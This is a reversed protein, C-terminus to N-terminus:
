RIGKIKRKYKPWAKKYKKVAKKPVYITKPPTEGFSNEGITPPTESLLTLSQLHTGDLAYDDISTLQEGLILSSLTSKRLSAMGLRKVDSPIQYSEMAATAAVVLTGDSNILANDKVNGGSIDQLRAVSIMPSPVYIVDRVGPLRVSVLDSTFLTGPIKTVPSKFKISFVDTKDDSIAKNVGCSSIEAGYENNPEADDCSFLQEGSYTTYDISAIQEIEYIRYLRSLRVIEPLDDSLFLELELIISEHQIDDYHNSEALSGYPYNEFFQPHYDQAMTPYYAAAFFLLTFFIIRKM